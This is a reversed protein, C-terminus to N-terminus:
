AKRDVLLSGGTNSTFMADSLYRNPSSAAQVQKLFTDIMELPSAGNTSTSNVFSADPPDNFNNFDINDGEDEESIVQWLEDAQDQTLSGNKLQEGIIEDIKSAVAVVTALPSNPQSFATSLGADISELASTLASRDTRDVSANNIQADPQNQAFQRASTYASFGPSALIATM